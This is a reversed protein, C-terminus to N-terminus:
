YEGGTVGGGPPMPGGMTPMGMGVGLGGMGGLGAAGGPQSGPGSKLNDKLKQEVEYKEIKDWDLFSLYQQKLFEEPIGFERLTTIARTANELYEMTHEYLSAKPPSFAVQIHKLIDTTEVNPHIMLYIKEFLDHMCEAFQKQYAVITRAFVISEVTLLSRNTANEELGIFAPPINLNAVINDRIFKL